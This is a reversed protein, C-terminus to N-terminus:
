DHPSYHFFFCSQPRLFTPPISFSYSFTMGDKPPPYAGSFLSPSFFPHDVRRRSFRVHVSKTQLCDNYQFSFGNPHINLFYWSRILFCIPAYCKLHSPLTPLKSTMPRRSPSFNSTYLETCPVCNPPPPLKIPLSASTPPSRFFIFAPRLGKAFGM